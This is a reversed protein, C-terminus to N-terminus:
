EIDVLTYSVFPKEGNKATYAVLSTHENLSCLVPYSAFADDATLYTKFESRGEKNRLQIGIRKSQKSVEDWVIVV